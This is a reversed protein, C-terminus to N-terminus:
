RDKEGTSAAQDRSPDMNATAYGRETVSHDRADPDRIWAKGQEVIAGARFISNTPSSPVAKSAPPFCPAM